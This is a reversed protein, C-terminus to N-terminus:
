HGRGLKTIKSLNNSLRDCTRYYIYLYTLYLLKSFAVQRTALIEKFLYGYPYRCFYRVINRYKDKFFVKDIISSSSGGGSFVAVVIPIFEFKTQAFFRLNLDYDACVPYEINYTGHSQFMGKRYLIGQHCINKKFIKRLSFEGDYIDGDRAWGTDGMVLVNGYVVDSLTEQLFKYIDLLTSNSYIRDNSGIFFLWSGNSIAIGKNMADYIGKDKESIVRLREKFFSQYGKVIKISDDNSLGDVVIIEFDQFSQKKLSEMLDILSQGSNYNPVIVSILYDMTVDVSADM